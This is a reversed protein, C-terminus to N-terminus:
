RASVTRRTRGHCVTEKRKPLSASAQPKARNTAYKSFRSSKGDAIVYAGPERSLARIQCCIQRDDRSLDVKEDEPLIKQAYM